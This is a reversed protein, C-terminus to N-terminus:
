TDSGSSFVLVLGLGLLVMLSPQTEPLSSLGGWWSPLPSRLQCQFVGNVGVRAVRRGWGFAGVSRTEVSSVAKPGSSDVCLLVEQQSDFSAM